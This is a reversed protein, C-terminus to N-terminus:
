IKYVDEFLIQHTFIFHFYRLKITRATHRHKLTFRIKYFHTEIEEWFWKDAWFNNLVVGVCNNADDHMVLKEYKFWYFYLVKFHYRMRHWFNHGVVCWNSLKLKTFICFYRIEYMRVYVLLKKFQFYGYRLFILHFVM